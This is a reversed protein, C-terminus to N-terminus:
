TASAVAVVVVVPRQLRLRGTRAVTTRGVLRTRPYRPFFILFFIPFFSLCELLSSVNFYGNKKLKSFFEQRLSGPFARPKKRFARFLIESLNAM